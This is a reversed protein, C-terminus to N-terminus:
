CHESPSYQGPEQLAFLFGWSWLILLQVCSAWGDPWPPFPSRFKGVNVFCHCKNSLPVLLCTFFMGWFPFILTLTGFAEQAAFCRLHAGMRLQAERWRRGRSCNGAAEGSVVLRQCGYVWMWPQQGEGEAVRRWGASCHVRSATIESCTQPALQAFPDALCALLLPHCDMQLLETFMQILFKPWICCM